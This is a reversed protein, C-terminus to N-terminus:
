RLLLYKPVLNLCQYLRQQELPYQEPLRHLLQMWKLCLLVLGQIRLHLWPKVICLVKPDEKKIELFQFPSYEGSPLMMAISCILIGSACRCSGRPIVEAATFVEYTASPAPDPTQRLTRQVSRCPIM